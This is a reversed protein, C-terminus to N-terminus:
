GAEKRWLLYRDADPRKLALGTGPVTLDPHLRGAFPTVVGDLLMPECHAHDAFYELHRLREVACGPALHASPACHLSLDIGHAQCLSDVALLGTIGGCRTVDAQLCDVAESGILRAFDTLTFGYEGAAVEIGPAIGDRVRRLGREDDSSVPEEFWVVDHAALVREAFGIAQGATFAGNADAMLKTGSGVAARAIRVREADAAPDRGVKMKVWQMGDNAWGGLQDELQASSLSTFGGSGYVPVGERRLGLLQALAIGLLRAKLDWLAQDVAAIAMSAVGPRGANRCAAAMRSWAAGVSFADEGLVEGALMDAILTGVAASGYTYGLGTEGGGHAEVVAMTTRDWTATGDSEPEPLPVALVTVDLSTVTAGARTATASV